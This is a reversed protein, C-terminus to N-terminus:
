ENGSEDAPKKAQANEGNPSAKARQLKVSKRISFFGWVALGAVLLCDFTILLRTWIPLRMGIIEKNMANSNVVTYFINKACRMLIVADAADNPDCWSVPQTALNLDGGAYAMQRSDMYYNTNFDCIVSGQFGWENRLIETCLRYDGGTWRTGIRNFSTMVGTAGGEKVAIEFPKLYIERMAQETVWSANGGISRHTEQENLAFHKIFCYVGKSNCGKIQAAALKGSLFGDESFYEFNRGGFPSRHINAGPAYWGSYPMSNSKGKADGWIGEEGVSQGFAYALDVNWTSAIVVECCYSCTGYFTTKDMFNVFGVPGDTDNTRPKGVEQIGASTFAGYDIMNILDEASCQELLTSWREDDYAVRPIGNEDLLKYAETGEEYLLERLKMGAKEDFWPMEEGELDEPNNHTVDLLAAIFDDDVNRNEATPTNPMTGDLDTRSLLEKLQLDSNFYENEQDTYLNVVANKTVPDTEYRIGGDAVKCTFTEAVSHASRSVSFIYSGAELEYGSFDNDNANKYDYSAMDYPDVTITVVDKEGPELLKTKAFGVLVKHPKEIGGKTYPATGYIQVVDKGKVEGTNTVQVSVDFTQKTLPANAQPKATVSWDFKTYSLGYGFPYVVNKKYWEEDNLGRTEYYRYGVYVSEEYEAFYFDQSVGNNVYRDGDTVNNDGFNAFTPNKKFDAAYTDVTKGSPTVSGSLIRGLAICGSMGPYGMWVAADIKDAHEFYATDELFTLEMASGSNIIVVVKKFGATCVNSLMERENKDLQLYHDDQNQAGEAGRMTRPLDFGEGGIRTFVVLAADSYESYSNRVTTTYKAYPTEATAISVTKGSDLDSSNAKRNEGSAKKDQYFAKLTPNVDFGALELGKYLDTVTKTDVAGSGSGGYAINVSNKGFVSVRPKATVREDSVPTYLPLAKDKNKLLTMGEECLLVNTENAKDFAEDKSKYASVYIPEINPDFVPREGGGPMVINFLQYFVTTSLVTAVTFLIVLGVSVIAWIRSGLHGFITKLVKM